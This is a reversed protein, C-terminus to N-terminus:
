WGAKLEENMLFQKWRALNFDSPIDAFEDGKVGTIIVTGCVMDKHLLFNPELDLLKGQENCIMVLKESLPVAQIYGDVTKQLNELSNSIYTVHGVEEDPRKVIVKIKQMEERM